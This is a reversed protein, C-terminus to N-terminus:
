LNEIETKRASPPPVDVLHEAGEYIVLAGVAALRGGGARADRREAQLGDREAIADCGRVL